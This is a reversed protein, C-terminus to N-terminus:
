YSITEMPAEVMYPGSGVFGEVTQWGDTADARPPVVFTAPTAVIDLFYSAPHRLEVVLTTADPATVGVEDEEVRDPWGNPRM